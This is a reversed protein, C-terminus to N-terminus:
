GKTKIEEFPSFPPLLLLPDSPRALAAAAIVTSGEEPFSPLAFLVLRSAHTENSADGIV